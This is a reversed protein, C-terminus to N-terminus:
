DRIRYQSPSMKSFNKFVRNFTSLSNFGSDFAIQILKKDQGDKQKLQLQAEQVRYQNIFRYFNQNLNDNIVQSLQHASITMQEALQPLTLVPDLFPKSREMVQILRGKIEEAETATLGTKKYKSVDIPSNDRIEDAGFIEPQILGRYGISFIFLSLLFYTIADDTRNQILAEPLLSQLGVAIIWIIIFLSVLYRIWELGIRDIESYSNKIKAAHAHTIRLCLFIYVFAQSLSISISLYAITSSKFYLNEFYRSIQEPPILYISSYIFFFLISPSFHYATKASLRSQPETLTRIYLYLLPAFSYPIANIFPSLWWLELYLGSTVYIPGLLSCSFLLVMAGLIRNARRNNKKTFLIIALFLGHFAAFCNVYVLINSIREM